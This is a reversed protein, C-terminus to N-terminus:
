FTMGIDPFNKGCFAEIFCNKRNWKGSVRVQAKAMKHKLQSLDREPPRVEHLREGSIDM